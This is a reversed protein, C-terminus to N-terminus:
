TDAFGAISLTSADMHSTSACRLLPQGCCAYASQLNTCLPWRGCSHVAVAHAPNMPKHVGQFGLGGQM